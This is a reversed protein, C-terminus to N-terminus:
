EIQQGLADPPVGAALQEIIGVARGIPWQEATARATEGMRRLLDRNTLSHMNAALEEVSVPLELIYGNRGHDVRDVVAAAARSGIVPVAWAMAELIVVGYPELQSAPHLLCDCHRALYERVQGPEYWGRFNVRTDVGLEGALRKLSQDEPGAGIIDLVSSDRLRALARIANDFGKYAVLRGICGFRLPHGQGRSVLAAREPVETWCPFNVIKAPAAGMQRLREVAVVGTGMVARARAFLPRLLWDRMRHRLGEQRPVDTWLVYNGGGRLWNAALILRNTWTNWGAMVLMADRRRGFERVTQWDVGLRKRLVRTWERANDLTKWPAQEVGAMQFVVEFRAGLRRRLHEFLYNNYPTPTSCFWVVPVGEAARPAPARSFAEPAELSAPQNRTSM